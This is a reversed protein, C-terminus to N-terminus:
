RRVGRAKRRAAYEEDRRKRAKGEARSMASVLYRGLTEPTTTRLAREDLEIAVLDGARDLGIAGIGRDVDEEVFCGEFRTESPEDDRMDHLRLIHQDSM